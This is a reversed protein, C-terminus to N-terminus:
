AALIVYLGLVIGALVVLFSGGAVVYGSPRGDDQAASLGRLGLAFIAVLGVGGIVSAVLVQGLASADVYRDM